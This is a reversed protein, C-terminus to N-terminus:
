CQSIIISSCFGGMGISNSLIHNIDNKYTTKSEPCLGHEAIPNKFNLNAIVMNNELALVSFIINIVGAAALCHGTFSKTSSFSPIQNKFVGKMAIGETLDNNATGTGHANIYDIKEPTLKSMELAIQMSSQIGIGEPSTSSLHFADNTISYGSLIAKPKVKREKISKESEIVLYGAGEGLNIGKRNKDFPKCRDSDLLLLSDFGNITYKSLTDVGGVLVMDLIDNKILRAGLIIANSSSSCATNITAHYNDIELEEALKETVHAVSHSSIFDIKEDGSVLNSFDQETKRLGGVTSSSIIGIRYNKKQENTLGADEIAEKSAKLALTLERSPKQTKPPADLRAILEEDSYKVEGVFLEGTYKSDLYKLKSIGDSEKSLKEFNSQVGLGLPSVIGMGSIYIDM